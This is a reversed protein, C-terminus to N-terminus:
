LAVEEERISVTLSFVFAAGWLSFILDQEKGAKNSM